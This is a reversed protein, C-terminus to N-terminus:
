SIRFFDDVKPSKSKAERVGKQFIDEGFTSSRQVGPLLVAALL